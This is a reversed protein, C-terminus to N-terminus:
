ESDPSVPEVLESLLSAGEEMYRRIEVDEINAFGVADKLAIRALEAVEPDLSEGRAGIAIIRETISGSVYSRMHVPPGAELYEQCRDSLTASASTPVADGDSVVYPATLMTQRTGETYWSLDWVGGERQVEFGYHDFGGHYEVRIREPSVSVYAPNLEAFIQPLAAFGSQGGTDAAARTYTVNGASSEALSIAAALLAKADVTEVHRKFQKYRAISHPGGLALFLGGGVVFLGLLLCGIFVAVKKM